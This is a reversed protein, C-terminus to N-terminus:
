CSANRAKCFGAACQLFILSTLVGLSVLVSQCVSWSLIESTKACVCVCPEFMHACQLCGWLRSIVHLNPGPLLQVQRYNGPVFPVFRKALRPKTLFNPAAIQLFQKVCAGPTSWAAKRVHGHKVEWHALLLDSVCLSMPRRTNRTDTHIHACTM